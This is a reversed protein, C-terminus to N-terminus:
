SDERRVELTDLDHGDVFTRDGLPAELEITIGDACDDGSDNAATVWVAVTQLDEQVEIGHDANCSAVSIELTRGDSLVWVDLIEVSRPVWSCGAATVVLLATLFALPRNM